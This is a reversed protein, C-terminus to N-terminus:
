NSFVASHPLCVQTPNHWQTWYVVRSQSPLLGIEKALLHQLPWLSRPLTQTRIPLHLLRSTQGFGFTPTSRPMIPLEVTRRQPHSPPAHSLILHSQPAAILCPTPISRRPKAVRMLLHLLRARVRFHRTHILRCQSPLGCHLPRWRLCM